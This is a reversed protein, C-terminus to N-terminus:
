VNQQEPFFAYLMDEVLSTWTDSDGANLEQNPYEELLFQVQKPTLEFNLDRAVRKIDDEHINTENMNVM